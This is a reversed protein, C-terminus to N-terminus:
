RAPSPTCYKCSPAHSKVPLFYYWPHRLVNFHSMICSLITDQNDYKMNHSIMNCRIMNYRIMNCCIWRDWKKNNWKELIIHSHLYETAVNGCFSAIIFFSIKPYSTLYSLIYYSAIYCSIIYYSIHYSIIHHSTVHYSIIHYIIILICNYAANHRM